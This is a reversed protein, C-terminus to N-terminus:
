IMNKEGPAVSGELRCLDGAKGHKWYTTISVFTKVCVVQDGKREKGVIPNDWRTLKKLDKCLM